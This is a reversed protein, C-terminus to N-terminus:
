FHLSLTQESNSRVFELVFMSDWLHTLISTRASSESPAAIKLQDSRGNSVEPCRSLKPPFNDRSRNSGDVQSGAHSSM